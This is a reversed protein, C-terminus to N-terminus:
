AAFCAFLCVSPNSAIRSCKFFLGIDYEFLVMWLLILLVWLVCWLCCGFLLGCSLLSSVYLSCYIVCHLVIIFVLLTFVTYFCPISSCDPLWVSECIFLGCKDQRVLMNPLKFFTAHKGGENRHFFCKKMHCKGLQGVYCVDICEIWIYM